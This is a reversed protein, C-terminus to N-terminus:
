RRYPEPSERKYVRSDMPPPPPPLSADVALNTITRDSFDTKSWKCPESRDRHGDMPPPPPGRRPPRNEGKKGLGIDRYAFILVGSQLVM